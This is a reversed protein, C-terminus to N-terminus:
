RVLADWLAERHTYRQLDAEHLTSGAWYQNGTSDLLFVYEERGQTRNRLWYVTHAPVNEFFLTDAKGNQGGALEWGDDWYFLEYLDGKSIFNGDNRAQILLKSALVPKPMEYVLQFNAKQFYTLPNQDYARESRHLSKRFDGDLMSFVDVPAILEDDANVVHFEALMSEEERPNSFIYYKFKSPSEIGIRQEAGSRMNDVRYLLQQDSLDVRNAGLVECGNLTGAWFYKDVRRPTLVPFKRALKAKVRAGHDAKLLQVESSPSLYFPTEYVEEGVTERLSYIIDTGYNYFVHADLGDVQYSSAVPDWEGEKHFVGIQVKETGPRLKMTFSNPNKYQDTVDVINKHKTDMDSMSHFSSRFIKPLADVAYIDDMVEWSEVDISYHQGALFVVLWSHGLLHHNGWHPVYERCAGIGLSRLVDVTLYVMQDCLGQRVKNLQGVTPTGPYAFVTGVVVDLSDFLMHLAGDMGVQSDLADYFWSYENYLQRRLGEELIENSVRYPLVYKIFKAKSARYEEPIRQYAEFALDVNEILHHASIEQVDFKVKKEYDAESYSSQIRGLQGEFYKRREHRKVGESRFRKMEDYISDHLYAHDLYFHNPMNGILYHVAELKEQDNRYHALVKELEDRNAGSLDLAHRVDRPTDSCACVLTCFIGAFTNIFIKM